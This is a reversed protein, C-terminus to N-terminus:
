KKGSNTINNNNKAFIVTRKNQNNNETPIGIHPTNLINQGVLTMKQGSGPQPIDNHKLSSNNGGSAFGGSTTHTGGGGSKIGMESM